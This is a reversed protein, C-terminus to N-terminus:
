FETQCVTERIGRLLNPLTASPPKAASRLLKKRIERHQRAVVAHLHTVRMDNKSSAEREGMPGALKHKIALQKTSRRSHFEPGHLPEDMDYNIHRALTGLLAPTRPM